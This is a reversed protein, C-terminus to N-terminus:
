KDSLKGKRILVEETSDDSSVFLFGEFETGLYIGRYYVDKITGKKKLYKLAIVNPGYWYNVSCSGEKLATQYYKLVNKINSYM